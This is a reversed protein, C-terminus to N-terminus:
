LLVQGLVSFGHALQDARAFGGYRFQRLGLGAEFGSLALVLDLRALAFIEVLLHVLAHDGGLPGAQDHIAAVTLIPVIIVTILLANAFAGGHALALGDDGDRVHGLHGHADFDVLAVNFLDFLTLAGADGHVSERVREHFAFHGLHAY